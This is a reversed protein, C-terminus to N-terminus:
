HGSSFITTGEVITRLVKLNRDLIVIDADKGISLSGKRDFAKIVKAPNASAMRISDELPVGIGQVMNRVADIMTLTSGALTGDALTAISDRITVRQSGFTYLGDSLGTGQMSDTILVINSPKKCKYVLRIVAPSIHVCDAIIEVTVKDNDLAAGPLGPERHNLGSMANFLHTVHGIGNDFAKMASSYDMDSHGSSPIVKMDKLYEIVELANEAEPAITVLIISNGSKRIFKDILDVSPPIIFDQPQAGRRLPNLFPGELNIGLIKSGKTGVRIAGALNELSNIIDDTSATMITPVYATVGKSAYFIGLSNLDEYTSYMVDYGSAGHTHIDIFGPVVYSDRADIQEVGECTINEEVKIITKNDVLLDKRQFGKNDYFVLGNKIIIM